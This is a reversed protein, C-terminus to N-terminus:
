QVSRPPVLRSSPSRSRWRYSWYDTTGIRYTGGDEIAPHALFERGLIPDVPTVLWYRGAGDTHLEGGDHKLARRIGVLDKCTM